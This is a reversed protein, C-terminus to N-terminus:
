LNEGAADDVMSQWGEALAVVEEVFKEKVPVFERLFAKADESLATAFNIRSLIDM